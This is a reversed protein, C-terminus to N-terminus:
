DFTIWGDEITAHIRGGLVGVLERTFALGIGTSYTGSVGSRGSQFQEFIRENEEPALRCGSNSVQLRLASLQPDPCATFTVHEFMGGHKFANSLLNFVIKELKDNDIAFRMGDPIHLEYTNQQRASLPGFVECLTSLRASVDQIQYDATLHGAQAKRFDLLQQVLYTLRSTQQKLLAVLPQSRQTRPPTADGQLREMQ